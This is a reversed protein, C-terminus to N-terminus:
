QLDQRPLGRGFPSGPHQESLPCHSRNHQLAPGAWSSSCGSSPPSVPPPCHPRGGLGPPPTARTGDAEGVPFFLGAAGASGGRFRCTTLASASRGTPTRSARPERPSHGPPFRLRACLGGGGGGALATATIREWRKSRCRTLGGLRPSVARPRRWLGSPWQTPLSVPSAPLGWSPRPECRVACSVPCLQCGGPGSLAGLRRARRKQEHRHQLLVEPASGPPPPLSPAHLEDPHFECVPLRSLWSM